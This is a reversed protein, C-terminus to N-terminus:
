IKKKLSRNIKFCLDLANFMNEKSVILKKGFIISELFNQIMDGKLVGPYKTTLSTKSLKHMRKNLIFENKFSQELTGDTGYILVRHFHPYVCGFNCSLKVIVNNEFKILSVVQDNINLNKKRTNFNNAFSKISKPQCKLFWLIMDIMHIGGSLVVSFDKIKGRWGYLIKEMRGYNYDVEVYYIDGFFGNEIKKRIDKFRPSMRLITNTSITLKKKNLLNKIKRLEDEKICLPKECFVHKDNKLANIIQGYHYQDFSAISVACIDKNLLIDKESKCGHINKYKKLIKKQKAKDFDYVFIKNVLKSKLYAIVHQEGVGLGIVGINIKKNKIIKGVYV